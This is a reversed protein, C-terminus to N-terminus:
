KKPNIVGLIGQTKLLEDVLRALGESPPTPKVKIQIHAHGTEKVPGASKTPVAVSLTRALPKAANATVGGREGREGLEGLEGFEISFNIQAEQIQLLGPPVLSLLPVRCAVEADAAHSAPLTLNMALPRSQDDFFSQIHARQAGEIQAQAEAISGAIAQVLEHLGNWKTM